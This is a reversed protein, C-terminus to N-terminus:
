TLQLVLLHSVSQSNMSTVSLQKPDKFERLM